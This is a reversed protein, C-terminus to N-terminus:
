APSGGPNIFGSLEAIVSRGRPGSLDAPAYQVLDVLDLLGSDSDM